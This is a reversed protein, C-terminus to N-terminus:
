ENIAVYLSVELVSDFAKTIDVKMTINEGDTKNNLQNVAELALSICDNVQRGNIFGRQEKSVLCSM